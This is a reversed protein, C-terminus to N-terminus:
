FTWVISVNSAPSLSPSPVRQESSVRCERQHGGFESTSTFPLSNGVGTSNSTVDSSGVGDGSLSFMQKESNIDKLPSPVIERSISDTRNMQGLEGSQYSLHWFSKARAKRRSCYRRQIHTRGNVVPALDGAPPGGSLSSDSILNIVCRSSGETETSLPLVASIGHMRCNSVNGPISSEASSMSKPEFVTYKSIPDTSSAPSIPLLRASHELFKDPNPTAFELSPLSQIVPSECLPVEKPSDELVGERSRSITGSEESDATDHPIEWCSSLARQKTDHGDCVCTVPSLSNVENEWLRSSCVGANLGTMLTKGPGTMSEEMGYSQQAEQSLFPLTNTTCCDAEKRLDSCTGPSTERHARHAGNRSDKECCSSNSNNDLPKLPLRRQPPPSPISLTLPSSLQSQQPQTHSHAKGTSRESAVSFSDASPLSQVPHINPSIKGPIATSKELTLHSPMSKEPSLSPQRTTSSKKSPYRSQTHHTTTNKRHHRTHLPPAVPVPLDFDPVDFTSM